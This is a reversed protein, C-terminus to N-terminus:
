FISKLYTEVAVVFDAAQCIQSEIEDKSVEFFDDYDCDTRSKFLDTITVSYKVDFKQTKIYEKRFEAIVGSHKKSDFGDIALVSRMAHFIAYYARNAAAKYFGNDFNSKAVQLSEKATHLRLESLQKNKDHM